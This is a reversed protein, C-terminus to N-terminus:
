LPQYFYSRSVHNSSLLMKQILALVRDILPSRIFKWVSVKKLFLIELLNFNINCLCFIDAHKFLQLLSLMNIVHLVIIYISIIKEICTTITAHYNAVCTLMTVMIVKM